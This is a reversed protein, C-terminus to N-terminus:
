NRVAIVKYFAMPLIETDEWSTGPANVIAIPTTGYNGYPDTARYVQYLDANTVTQWTLRTNNASRTVTVVPQDLEIIESVSIPVPSANTGLVQGFNLTYTELADYALNASYDYIKFSVNEGPSALNVLITVYANGGNMVLDAVGRCENGVFAGIVDNLQGSAGYISVIGYVTASNNPYTVPIWGPGTVENVTVQVSDYAYTFGDYVSFTIAETGTWNEAATFTVTLGNIAVNINTNGSYDLTLPDLDEDSVYPGFSVELSCNRDFAFSAPLNIIPAHNGNDWVDMIASIELSPNVPDNSHITLLAEYSGVAMGIASFYATVLQSQGAPISGSLPQVSLWEVPPIAQAVTLTGSITHPEANYEDGIIQFPLSMTGGFSPAISVNVTATATQRSQILGYGSSNQGHWTITIGSGNTNDAVLDGGSGGVFSTVSNVIVGTPFTIIVDKLWEADTSANYVTFTWDQMTGPTYEEANLTLTSSTINRDVKASGPAASAFSSRLEAMSIEYSLTQSGTNTITFSDTGEDGVQLSAYLADNDVNITPPIFGAGTVAINVTANNVANSTIVVNGNYATAATPTLTLDYTKSAGANVSFNLTNRSDKDTSMGLQDGRAASLAVTYGTPTTITGILTQDGGNLITFEQISSTGVAVDGYSLSSPNAVIMPGSANPLLALKVNPRNTSTSSGTFVNTQDSSDSRGYRYGSTVTSYQTTGSSNWSGILGFATDIVINDTGNWLFPASLTLMNWGTTTPQYSASTWVTTLGTSIWTSVNTASTHGMRILYNPMAKTPLGTVNFGIQSINIPGVVGLANLEAATYVSQGHLSQYYVNIPCADSTGNSSTGTGIVVMTPVIATPTANVTDTPDSEDAGYAAILYYTYPTENVVANDTYSLGTVTTLLASNRFIKYGTPTGTLPADWALNVFGNGPTAVLNRPPYFSNPATSAPFIINDIWACDSGTDTSVDKMYEWKLARTGATLPYSAQTWDVTGSWGTGQLVGDIYFKLKDYNTESSVKYWFTLTGPSSLIRTTEMTTSGYAPITGSKAAYTGAYAGTNVVTWPITSPIWPFSSFDGTEFDELILGIAPTETKNATYTGATANFVLSAVTGITMSSSATISFTLNRSGAAAIAAFSASGTNITIGSTPSTLTASGALSAAAGTNNLPMTITVTEGPDLRGNNNGPAPDSVTMNGFTLAPANIIQTFNHVWTESGSVMTITFNAVTGNAVNDAINFTYANNVTTSAGAALSAITESNDTITIGSTACTLTTVVNTTTVSGVNQYTVNFRGTENYEAVNNNNDRYVTNSVSVYPGSNPIISVDTQLTIKNQATITMKATGVNTFATIPLNLSGGAPVIATGYITGGMTLAVRSYPAATVTIQTAGILIQNPYSANNVTPVGMYTMLSPDGMIHYIEWYYNKLSSGSQQVAMNGMFITEGTTTAWNSTDEEHTHFMADNVGLKSANYAPATGNIPTKYGVAWYYDEDWYTSNIGGIYAVGGANAKRIIAEGFCPSSYNFWNTICCNGVMVGYKNANTMANVNSVTFTPDGWSTESGHATYNIYGRGENANAIIVADSTQSAPYLYNNSTIGHATNFYEATAYNIAGNGHTPAFGSDAGAILVTKGLYSLDPMLTKEYTITKTIINALETTSSVSFRGHYMEPLYDSGNLRVYSMDTVHSDTAGTNTAVTITGSEDGIILLYTPAPNETTASNWLNQMYSKIAAATNAVMAGTGVTVVNVAFGQETKWDVYSQINSTYAAPCLIVMKTPYRVLQTRYGGDYNFISKAYLAEFEASATKALMEQTAALDPNLFEVRIDATSVIELAGTVPNYRIPEFYFQFLRLGRMMGIEEIRFNPTQNFENRAYFAANREFVISSLDASKSVSPQAPIISRTIGSDKRDLVRTEQSLIEFKVQAGLPVAVIRSTMPLQAEGIRSSYGYGEISIEDFSGAKSDVSQLLYKDVSLRLEFGFDNSNQLKLQNSNASLNVERTQAALPGVLGIIILIMLLQTLLSKGQM